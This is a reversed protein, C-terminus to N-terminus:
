ADCKRRSCRKLSVLVVMAAARNERLHTVPGAHRIIIVRLRTVYYIKFNVYVCFKAHRKRDRRKMPKRGQPQGKKEKQKEQAKSDKILVGVCM